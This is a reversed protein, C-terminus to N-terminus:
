GAAVDWQSKLADLADVDGGLGLWDERQAAAEARGIQDQIQPGVRGLAEAAREAAAGDRGFRALAAADERLEPEAALRERTWRRLEDVRGALRAGRKATEDGFLAKLNLGLRKM